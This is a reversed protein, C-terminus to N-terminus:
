NIEKLKKSVEEDFEIEEEIEKETMGVGYRAKEMKMYNDEIFDDDEFFTMCNEYNIKKIREIVNERYREGSSALHNVLRVIVLQNEPSLQEIRCNIKINFESM